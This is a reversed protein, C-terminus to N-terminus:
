HTGRAALPNLPVQIMQDHLQGLFGEGHSVVLISKQRVRTVYSLAQCFLREGDRDLHNLPEDLLILPSSSLLTMTLLAKQREGGSAENWSTRLRSPSLLSIQSMDEDFEKSRRLPRAFDIVEELLLHDRM